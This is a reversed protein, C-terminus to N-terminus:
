ITSKNKKNRVTEILTQLDLEKQEGTDLNKLSILNKDIEESGVIIV